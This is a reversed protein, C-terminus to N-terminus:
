GEEPFLFGQFAAFAIADRAINTMFEPDKHRGMQQLLGLRSRWDPPFLFIDRKKPPLGTAAFLEDSSIGLHKLALRQRTAAVSEDYLDEDDIRDRVEFMWLAATFGDVLVIIDLDSGLRGGGRALSGFLEVGLVHQGRGMIVDGLRNAQERVLAREALVQVNAEPDPQPRVMVSEEEGLVPSPDPFEDWDAPPVSFGRASFGDEDDEPRMVVVSTTDYGPLLRAQTGLYDELANAAVPEGPIVGTVMELLFNWNSPDPLSGACYVVIRLTPGEEFGYAEMRQLTGDAGIYSVCADLWTKAMCYYDIYTYFVRDLLKHAADVDLETVIYWTGDGDLDGYDLLERIRGSDYPVSAPYQGPVAPRTLLKADTVILASPGVNYQTLDLENSYTMTPM